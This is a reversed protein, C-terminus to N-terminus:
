EFLAELEIHVLKGQANYPLVDFYRWKRPICVSEFQSRLLNRFENNLQRKPLSLYQKQGMESLAIVAALVEREGSLLLVRAEDVWLHQVLRNEIANLDVRKEEIKVTRDARGLLWFTNSSDLKAIDSLVYPQEDLYPSKVALCNHTSYEVTIGEFTKWPLPKDAQSKYAIGGTETSGYVQTISQGFQASLIATDDDELKGGSCFISEFHSAYCALVNDKALRKLFAPSSILVAKELSAILSLIDEPYEFLEYVTTGLKLPLLLRFLMGYIHFHPVTALFHQRNSFSFTQELVSLEKNLADISKTILKSKGTSGSTTFIVKGSSPWVVKAQALMGTSPPIEDLNEVSNSQLDAGAIGDCFQVLEEVTVLKNNSPLVVTVNEANLAFLRVCFRYVNNDFLAIKLEHEKLFIQRFTAIKLRYAAIDDYLQSYPISQNTLKFACSNM